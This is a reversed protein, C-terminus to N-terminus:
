GEVQKDFQRAFNSETALRVPRAQKVSAVQTGNFFMGGIAKEEDRLYIGWLVGAEAVVSLVYVPSGPYVGQAKYEGERLFILDDRKIPTGDSAICGRVPLARAQEALFDGLRGPDIEEEIMRRVTVM